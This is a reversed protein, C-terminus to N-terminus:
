RAASRRQELRERVLRDDGDLVGAQELLDLLVADRSSCASPSTPWATEDESSRWSTSVVITTARRGGRRRRRAARDVLEVVLRAVNEGARRRDSARRLQERRDLLIAQPEDSSLTTPRAASRPWATWTASRAARLRSKAGLGTAPRGAAPQSGRAAPRGARGRAAPPRRGPSGGCSVPSNGLGDDVQELREGALRDQRDLVGPQELLDCSVLRSSSAALWCLDCNRAFMDWSSRVGSLAIM